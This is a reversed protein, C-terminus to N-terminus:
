DTSRRLLNICALILCHGCVHCWEVRCTSKHTHTIGHRPYTPFGPGNSAPYLIPCDCGSRGLSAFHVAWPLRWNASSYPQVTTNNLMRTYTFAMYRVPGIAKCSPFRFNVISIFNPMSQLGNRSKIVSRHDTQLNESINDTM